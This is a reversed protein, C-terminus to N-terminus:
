GQHSLRDAADTGDGQRDGIKRSLISKRFTKPGSCRAARRPTPDPSSTNHGFGVCLRLLDPLHVAFRGDALDFLANRDDPSVDLFQDLLRGGVGTCSIFRPRSIPDGLLFFFKRFQNRKAVGPERFSRKRRELRIDRGQRAALGNRLFRSNFASMGAAHASAIKAAWAQAASTAM